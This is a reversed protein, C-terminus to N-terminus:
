PSSRAFVWRHALAFNVISTLGISLMNAPVAPWGLWGTFMSMWMLNLVVSALGNALHFKWLSGARDKWTWRKHWAYNHLVAAEVVVATAILFHVGLRQLLALVGLQLVAGIVGVANFKLWRTM